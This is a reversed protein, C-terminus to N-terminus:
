VYHWYMSLLVLWCLHWWKQNSYLLTFLTQKLGNTYVHYQINPMM